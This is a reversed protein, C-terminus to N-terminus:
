RLHHYSRVVRIRACDRRQHAAIRHSPIIWQASPHSLAVEKVAVAPRPKRGRNGRDRYSDNERQPHFAAPDCRDPSYLFPGPSAGCTLTTTSCAAAWGEARM